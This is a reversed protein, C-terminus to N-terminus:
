FIFAHSCFLECIVVYMKTIGRNNTTNSYSLNKEEIKKKKM